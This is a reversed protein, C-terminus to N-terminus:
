GPFAAVVIQLAEWLRNSDQHLLPERDQLGGDVGLISILELVDM